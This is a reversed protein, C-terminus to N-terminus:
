HFKYVPDENSHSHRDSKLTVDALRRMSFVDPFTQFLNSLILLSVHPFSVFIKLLLHFIEHRIHRLMSLSNLDLSFRHFEVFIHLSPFIAFLFVIVEVVVLLLLQQRPRRQQLLVVVEVALVQEYELEVLVFM